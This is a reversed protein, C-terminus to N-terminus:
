DINKLKALLAKKKQKDRKKTNISTEKKPRAYKGTQGLRICCLWWVRIGPDNSPRYFSLIINFFIMGISFNVWFLTIMANIALQFGRSFQLILYILIAIHLALLLGFLGRCLKARKKRQEINHTLRQNEDLGYAIM